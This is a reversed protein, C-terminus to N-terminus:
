FFRMLPTAHCRYWINCMFIRLKPNQQPTCVVQNVISVLLPPKIEMMSLPAPASRRIEAQSGSDFNFASFCKACEGSRDLGKRPERRRRDVSRGHGITFWRWRTSNWQTILLRVISGGGASGLYLFLPFPLLLLPCGEGNMKAWIQPFPCRFVGCRRRPHDHLRRCCISQVSPAAIDTSIAFSLQRKESQRSDLSGSARWENPPPPPPPPPTSSSRRPTILPFSLSFSHGQWRIM